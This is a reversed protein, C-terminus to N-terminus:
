NTWPNAGVGRWGANLGANSLVTNAWGTCNYSRSWFGNNLTYVTPSWEMGQEVRSLTAADVWFTYTPTANRPHDSDDRVEGPAAIFAAAYHWSAKPYYGRTKNPTQIFTHPILAHTYDWVYV